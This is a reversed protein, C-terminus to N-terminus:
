RLLARLQSGAEPSCLRWPGLLTEFHARTFDGTGVLDAVAFAAAADRVATALDSCLREDERLTVEDMYRREWAADQARYWSKIRGAAWAADRACVWAALRPRSDVADSPRGLEELRDDLVATADVAHMMVHPWNPGFTEACEHETVAFSDLVALADDLGAQQLIDPGPLDLRSLLQFAVFAEGRVQACHVLVELVSFGTEPACDGADRHRRIFQAARAPLLRLEDTIVDASSM